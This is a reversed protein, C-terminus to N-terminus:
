TNGVLANASYTQTGATAPVITFSGATFGSGATTVSVNAPYEKVYQAYNNWDIAQGPTLPNGV